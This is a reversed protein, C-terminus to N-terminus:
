PGYDVSIPELAFGGVPYVFTPVISYVERGDLSLARIVKVPRQSTPKSPFSDGLSLYVLDQIGTEEPVNERYPANNDEMQYQAWELPEIDSVKTNSQGHLHNHSVVDM